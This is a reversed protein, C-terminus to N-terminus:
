KEVCSIREVNEMPYHTEFKYHTVNRLRSNNEIFSKDRFVTLINDQIFYDCFNHEYRGGSKTRVTISGYKYEKM